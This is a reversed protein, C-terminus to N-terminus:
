GKLKNLIIQRFMTAYIHEKNKISSHCNTCLTILNTIDYRAGPMDVWRSIHHVELKRGRYKCGPMQCKHKDRKLTDRRANKYEDSDQRKSTM